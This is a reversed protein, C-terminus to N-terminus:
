GVHLYLRRRRRRTTMTRLSIKIADELPGQMISRLKTDSFYEDNDEFDNDENKTVVRLCLKQM